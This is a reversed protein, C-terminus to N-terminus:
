GSSPPSAPSPRPWPRSARTASRTKAARRLAPPPSRPRPDPPSGPQSDPSWRAPLFRRFRAALPPCPPLPPHPPAGRCALRPVFSPRPPLPLPLRTACVAAWPGAFVARLHFYTPLISHAAHRSPPSLHAPRPRPASHPLPARLLGTEAPGGARSVFGGSVVGGGAGARGAARAGGYGLRWRANGGGRQGAWGGGWSSPPLALCPGADAPGRRGHPAHVPRCARAPAPRAPPPRRVLAM